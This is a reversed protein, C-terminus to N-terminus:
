NSFDGFIGRSTRRDFNKYPHSTNLISNEIPITFMKRLKESLHDYPHPFPAPREM